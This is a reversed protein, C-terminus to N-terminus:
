TSENEDAQKQMILFRARGYTKDKLIEFGSTKPEHGKDMEWVVFTGPKAYKCLQRVLGDGLEPNAFPPDIFCLDIRPAFEKAAFVADAKRVIFEYPEFGALNKKVSELSGSNTDTFITNIAWGRSLFEIGFAGSGAFADWVAVPGSPLIENLMNFLAIRTRNQTPRANLPLALKRGRFKGSIIQLKSEM